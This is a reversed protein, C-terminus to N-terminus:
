GPGQKLDPTQPILSNNQANAARKELTWQLLKKYIRNLREERDPGDYVVSKITIQEKAMSVVETFSIPDRAFLQSTFHEQKEHPNVGPAIPVGQRFVPLNSSDCNTM